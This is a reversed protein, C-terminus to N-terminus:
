FLGAASLQVRSGIPPPRFLAIESGAWCRFTLSPDDLSRDFAVRVRTPAGEANVERVEVSLHTLAIKDGTRFPARQLNRIREFPTTIWGHAAHLELGRDGYRDVELAQTGAYLIFVPPRVDGRTARMAAQYWPVHPTPANLVITIPAAARPVVRDLANAAGGSFLSACGFLQPIFLLPM